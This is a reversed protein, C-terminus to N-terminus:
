SRSFGNRRERAAPERGIWQVRNMGIIEGLARLVDRHAKIRWDLGARFSIPAVEKKLLQFQVACSGPSAKKLLDAVRQMRDPDRQAEETLQLLVGAGMAEGATTLPRAEQLILSAADRSGPTAVLYILADEQLVSGLAEFIEAFAVVECRGTLDELMFKAMRRGISKGKKVMLIQLATVMGCVAVPKGPPIQDLQNLQFGDPWNLGRIEALYDDLPHATLFCGLSKKEAALLESQNWIPRDPYADVHLDAGARAGGFLSMQGLGRDRSATQGSQVAPDIAAALQGRNRGGAISDFAGSCVLAEVTSRNVARLDVSRCFHYLDRFGGETKRAALIADVAAGGVGKIAMLGFRVRDGDVTFNRDCTNVDPPAVQFGSQRASKLYHVLKDTDGVEYSLTAAWFELPHHRKFYATQYAVIAYRASHAKNFGYGAFKLILDFLRQAEPATVGNAKAGELFAAREAEIEKEKKKSVAKILTLARSLPIGGLRNLVLMVQEQYVMFGYTEALIDDVLPHVKEVPLEGRKRVCYLKILEMSGPRYLANAAILDEIRNPLMDLLVSKMGPSEFQFVGDTEGRRFLEFVGPDDVTLSEPDFDQGTKARVMERARQIVTLTKLGLIDMKMLGAKECTPGDWQTIVDPSNGLQCLPVLGELPEDCVVVASAHVSPNRALNELVRGIEVIERLHSSPDAHLARLEPSSLIAKDLTIKADEPILKSIRKVEDLPVDMVRGVDTIV